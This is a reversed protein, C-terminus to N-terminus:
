NEARHSSVVVNRMGFASAVSCDNYRLAVFTESPNNQAMILCNEPFPVNILNYAAFLDTYIHETFQLVTMM